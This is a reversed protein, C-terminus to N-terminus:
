RKIFCGWAVNLFEQHMYPELNNAECAVKIDAYNCELWNWVNLADFTEKDTCYDHLMIVDGPNLLKALGNFEAKKNGGDCLVLKPTINFIGQWKEVPNYCYCDTDNFINEFYLKINNDILRSHYPQQCIEFSYIDAFDSVQDKLFMTLGGAGTGVEIIRLPKLAQLLKPFETMAEERQQLLLDKYVSRTLIDDIM